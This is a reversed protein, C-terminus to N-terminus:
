AAIQGDAATVLKSWLSYQLALSDTGVSRRRTATDVTLMNCQAASNSYGSDAYQVTATDVTLM